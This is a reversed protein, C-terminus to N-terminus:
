EHTLRRKMDNSASQMIIQALRAKSEGVNVRKAADVMRQRLEGDSIIRAVQAVLTDGNAHEQSLVVAGGIEELRRANELQEGRSSEKGLPILVMPVEMELFDAIATAGSRSVVLTAARLVGGFDGDIFPVARYGNREIKRYTKEGTQHVVCALELLDDLREWVLTNIQLAGQSGGLIVILPRNKPIGYRIRAMEADATEKSLRTPVGTKRVKSALRPPFQRQVEDFPVCIIDAFRANIKTALGILADSEHTVTPIGLLYAAVVPPVSVYGGKSFVVDPRERRLIALAQFFGVVINAMDPLLRWSFYRRLKGSRISLYRISAAEVWKQEEIKGSGIWFREYPTSGNNAEHLLYADIAFVPFVHGGTGGGTYCVKM